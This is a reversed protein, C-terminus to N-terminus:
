PIMGDMDTVDDKERSQCPQSLSTKKLSQERIGSNKNKKRM